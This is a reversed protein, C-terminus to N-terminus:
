QSHPEQTSTATTIHLYQIAEEPGSLGLEEEHTGTLGEHFLSQELEKSQFKAEAYANVDPESDVSRFSNSLDVPPHLDQGTIDGPVPSVTASPNSMTGAEPTQNELCFSIFNPLISEQFSDM